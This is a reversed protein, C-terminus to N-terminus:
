LDQECLRAYLTRYTGTILIQGLDCPFSGDNPHKLYEYETEDCERGLTRSDPICVSAKVFCEPAPKGLFTIWLLDWKDLESIMPPKPRGLRRKKSPGQDASYDRVVTMVM